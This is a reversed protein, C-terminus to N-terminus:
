SPMAQILQNASTTWGFIGGQQTIMHLASHHDQLDFAATGDTIILCNFGRDNAERVTSHVCVHTTVGTVILHTINNERLTEELNTNYFAGKGPKQIVWESEIPKLKDIIENGYEGAILLRGLPGEGGIEAGQLRSRELKSKNCDSLDTSHGEKTHIVMGNLRRYSQLIAQIPEICSQINALSNGLREGFGGPLLFENQMDIILLASKEFEFQISHPESKKVVIESM